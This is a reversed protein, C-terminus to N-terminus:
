MLGSERGVYPVRGEVRYPGVSCTWGNLDLKVRIKCAWDSVAAVLGM